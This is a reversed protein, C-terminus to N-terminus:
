RNWCTKIMNVLSLGHCANDENIFTRILTDTSDLLCWSDVEVLQISTGHFTHTGTAEFKIFIGTCTPHLLSFVTTDENEWHFCPTMVDSSTDNVDLLTFSAILVNQITPSKKLVVSVAGVQINEVEAVSELTRRPKWHENTHADM